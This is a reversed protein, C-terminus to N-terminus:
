NFTKEYDIIVTLEGDLGEGSISILYSSELSFFGNVLLVSNYSTSLEINDVLIDMGVLISFATLPDVLDHTLLTIKRAYFEYMPNSSGDVISISMPEGQGGIDVTTTKIATFKIINIFAPILVANSDDIEITIDKVPMLLNNATAVLLWGKDTVKYQLGENLGNAAVLAELETFTLETVVNDKTIIKTILDKLYIINDALKRIATQWNNGVHSINNPLNIEKM